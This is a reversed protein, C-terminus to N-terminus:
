WYKLIEPIADESGCFVLQILIKADMIRNAYFGFNNKYLESFTFGNLEKNIELNELPFEDNVFAIISAIREKGDVIKYLGQKDQVILFAHLPLCMMMSEFFKCSKQNDWRVRKLGKFQKIFDSVRYDRDRIDFNKM